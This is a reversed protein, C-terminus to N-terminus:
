TRMLTSTAVISGEYTRIQQSTLSRHLAKLQQDHPDKPRGTGDHWRQVTTKPTNLRRGIEAKTIGAAIIQDILTAYDTM